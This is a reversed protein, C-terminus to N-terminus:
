AGWKRGLDATLSVLYSHQDMEDRIKELDRLATQNIPAGKQEWEKFLNVKSNELSNITLKLKKSFNEFIKIREEKSLSNDEIKEQLEFYEEALQLPRKSFQNTKQEVLGLSLIYRARQDDDKLTLFANNAFASWQTALILNESSLLQHKDPHLKRTLDYYRNQLEEQDIHYRVNLGYLEFYNPNTTPVVLQGCQPCISFKKSQDHSCSMFDRNPRFLVAAVVVRKPM